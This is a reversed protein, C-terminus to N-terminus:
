CTNEERRISSSCGRRIRPISILRVGCTTMNSRPAPRRPRWRNVTSGANWCRSSARIPVLAPPWPEHRRRKWGSPPIASAWGYFGWARGIDWRPTRNVKWFSKSCSRPLRDWRSRGICCVPPHGLWTSSTARPVISTSPPPKIPCTVVSTHHWASAM